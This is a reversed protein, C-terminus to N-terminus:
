ELFKCAMLLKALDRLHAPHWERSEFLSRLFPMANKKELSFDISDNVKSVVQINPKGLITAGRRGPHTARLFIKPGEKKVFLFPCDFRDEAFLFQGFMEIDSILKRSDKCKACHAIGRKIRTFAIDGCLECRIHKSIEGRIDAIIPLNKLIALMISTYYINYHSYIEEFM